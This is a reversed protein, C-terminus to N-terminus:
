LLLGEKVAFILAALETMVGTDIKWVVCHCVTIKVTEM